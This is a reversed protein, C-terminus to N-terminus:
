KNDANHEVERHKHTCCSCRQKNLKSIYKETLKRLHNDIIKGRTANVKM